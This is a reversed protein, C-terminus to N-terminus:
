LWLKRLFESVDPILFFVGFGLGVFALSGFEADDGGDNGEGDEEDEPKRASKAPEVLPDAREAEAFDHGTNEVDTEEKEGGSKEREREVNMVGKNVFFLEAEVFGGGGGEDAVLDFAKNERRHQADRDEGEDEPEEAGEGIGPNVGPKRHGGKGKEKGEEGGTDNKREEVLEGGHFVAFELGGDLVHGPFAVEREDTEEDDVTGFTGGLGVGVEGAKTLEFLDGEVVRKDVALAGLFEDADEGVFDSVELLLM